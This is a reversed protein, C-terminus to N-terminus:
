KLAEKAERIQKRLRQNERNLSGERHIEQYVRIGLPDTGVLEYDRHYIEFYELSSAPIFVDPPPAIPVSITRGYNGDIIRECGDVSVLRCKM